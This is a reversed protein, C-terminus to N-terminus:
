ASRRKRTPANKSLVVQRRQEAGMVSAEVSSCTLGGSDRAETSQAKSKKM